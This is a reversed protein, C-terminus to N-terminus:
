SELDDSPEDIDKAPDGEKIMNEVDELLHNLDEKIIGWVIRNDIADYGHILINRFSIISRCSRIRDPILPDDRRIRNLAEGVIEFKREIGSRLLTDNQYDEFTKGAIFGLIASAAERIDYLHKLIKDVM